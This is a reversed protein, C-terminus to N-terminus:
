NFYGLPPVCCGIQRRYGGRCKAKWSPAIGLPPSKQGGRRYPPKGGSARKEQCGIGGRFLGFAIRETHFGREHRTPLGQSLPM